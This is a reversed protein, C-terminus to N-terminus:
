LEVDGGGNITEWDKVSVSVSIKVKDMKTVKITLTYQKGADFATLKGTGVTIDSPKITATRTENGEGTPYTLTILNADALAQPALTHFTGASKADGTNYIREPALSIVEATPNLTIGDYTVASSKKLTFSATIADFQEKTFAATVGDTPAINELVLKVRSMLHTLKDTTSFDIAGGFIAPTTSGKLYDQEPNGAAVPTFFATFTPVTGVTFDNWYLPTTANWLISGSGDTALAATYTASVAAAAGQKGTLTLVDGVAGTGDVGTGTTIGDITIAHDISETVGGEWPEVTATIVSGVQGITMRLTNVTGAKLPSTAALPATFVKGAQTTLELAVGSGAATPMVIGKSSIVGETLVTPLAINAAADATLTGSEFSYTATPATGKVALTAGTLDVSAASADPTVSIVLKALQHRFKFDVAPTKETLGALKDALMFDIKSLDAQNTTNIALTTTVEEAYPYYATIDTPAEQKPFYATNAEDTPAFAGDGNATFYCFNGKGDVFHTTGAEYMMVGIADGSTWANDIARTTIGANISLPTRDILSTTPENDDACATFLTAAVAFTLLKKTKMSM